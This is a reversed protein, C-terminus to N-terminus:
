LTSATVCLKVKSTFQIMVKRVKLNYKVNTPQVFEYEFLVAGVVVMCDKESRNGGVKPQLLQFLIFFVELIVTIGHLQM